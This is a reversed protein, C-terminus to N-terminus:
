GHKHGMVVQCPIGDVRNQKFEIWSSNVHFQNIQMFNKYDSNNRHVVAMFHGTDPVNDQRLMSM